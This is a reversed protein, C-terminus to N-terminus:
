GPKPAHVLLQKVDQGIRSAKAVAEDRSAAAAGAVWAQALFKGLRERTADDAGIAEAAEDLLPYVDETAAAAYKQALDALAPIEPV